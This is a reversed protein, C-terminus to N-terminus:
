LSYDKIMQHIVHKRKVSTRSISTMKGVVGHKSEVLLKMQSLSQTGGWNAFPFFHTVFLDVSKGKMDPIQKLYTEMVKSIAFGHVPSAIVLHDFPALDPKVTLVPFYDNPNDSVAKVELVECSLQKALLAAVKRTSGTKSYILIGNKMDIVMARKRLGDMDYICTKIGIPYWM